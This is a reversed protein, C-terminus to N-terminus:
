REKHEKHNIRSSHLEWTHVCKILLFSKIFKRHPDKRMTLDKLIVNTNSFNVWFAASSIKGDKDGRKLKIKLIENSM